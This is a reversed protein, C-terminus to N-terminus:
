FKQEALHYNSIGASPKCGTEPNKKHIDDRPLHLFNKSCLYFIMGKWTPYKVKGGIENNIPLM